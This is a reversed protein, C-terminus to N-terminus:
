YCDIVFNYDASLFWNKPSFRREEQNIRVFLRVECIFQSLLSGTKLFNDPSKFTFELRHDGDLIDLVFQNFDIIEPPNNTENCIIEYDVLYNELTSVVEARTIADNLSLYIVDPILNEVLDVVMDLNKLLPFNRNM